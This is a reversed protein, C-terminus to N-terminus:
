RLSCESARYRLCWYRGLSMLWAEGEKSAICAIWKKAVDVVVRGKRQREVAEVFHFV